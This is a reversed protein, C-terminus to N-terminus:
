KRMINNRKRPDKTGPKEKQKKTEKSRQKKAKKSKQKKVSVLYVELLVSGPVDTNCQIAHLLYKDTYFATIETAAVKPLALCSTVWTVVLGPEV